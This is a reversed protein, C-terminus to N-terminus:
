TSLFVLLHLFVLIRPHETYSSHLLSSLLNLTLNPFTVAAMNCFGKCSKRTLGATLFTSGTCPACTQDRTLSSLDQLSYSEALFYFNFLLLLLIRQLGSIPNPSSVSFSTIYYTALHETMDSEKHDGPSYGM